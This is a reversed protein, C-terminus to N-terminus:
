KELLDLLHKITKEKIKEESSDEIIFKRGEKSFEEKEKKSLSFFSDIEKQIEEINFGVKRAAKTTMQGYTNLNFLIVPTGCAMSERPPYPYSTRRSFFLSIDAINYYDSVKNNPIHSLHILNEFKKEKFKEYKMEGILIFKKDPNNEILDFLYDAGQEFEVRGVYVLVKDKKTLGLEKRLKEKNKPKFTETNIPCPLYFFKDKSLFLFKQFGDGVEKCCSLFRTTFFQSILFIQNKLNIKPNNLFYFITKTGTFMTALTLTIAMKSEGGFIIFLDIKNKRIFKRLKLIVEQKKDLFEYVKTKEFKYKEKDIETACVMFFETDKPCIKEYYNMIVHMSPGYHGFFFCVRSM